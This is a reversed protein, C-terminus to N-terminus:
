ISGRVGLMRIDLDGVSSGLMMMTAMSLQCHQDDSVRRADGM